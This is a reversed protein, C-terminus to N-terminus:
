LSHTNKFSLIVEAVEKSMIDLNFRKEAVIRANRGLIEAEKPHSALYDIAKEWGNIDGYAVTLGANEKKVDIEFTPNDTVILPLGLAMAEVLTTLGVTYPRESCCIVVCYSHSVLKAMEPITQNVIHFHVNPAPSVNQKVEALYDRGIFPHTYIDCISTTKNFAKILTVFDRNEVGTSIFRHSRDSTMLQSYYSLDAGWHIVIADQERVKGTRVSRNALEKSFFFLKDIGKYFLRSLKERLYSSPDVVATHHWLIIPKKYLGLARLLIILELGRHTVAYLLDYDYKFLLFWLNYFMLEWRKMQFHFGKPYFCAKIGYRELHTLGYLLHGPFNGNRWNELEESVPFVHYFFVNM